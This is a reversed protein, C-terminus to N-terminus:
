KKRIRGRMELFLQLQNEFDIFETACSRLVRMENMYENRDDWDLTTGTAQLYAQEMRFKTDKIYFEITEECNM